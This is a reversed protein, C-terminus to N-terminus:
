FNGAYERFAALFRDELEQESKVEGVNTNLNGAVKILVRVIATRSLKKGGRFRTDKSIRDLFCIQNKTLTASTWDM